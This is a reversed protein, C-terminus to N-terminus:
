FALMKVPNDHMIKTRVLDPDIGAAYLGPLINDPIHSYGQGGYQKLMCKLCIDNTLLLQDAYGAQIYDAILTIREADSIFKGAAFSANEPQFEKGFNDIEVFVGMKFLQKVYETDPEVDSHCIVIKEPPVGHQLMLKAAELGNSAWPYIHIQVAYGTKRQVLAAAHLVKRERPLIERSTGIEGIVGPRIGTNGVGNQIEHYLKEALEDETLEETEAPHTDQTYYGCGMVINVGTKAALMKLKEPSCGIQLLSCEVILDFGKERLDALEAEAAAMDNLILNDRFCYPDQMLANRDNKGIPRDQATPNAQNTLDIFLHEHSLVMSPLDAPIPGTVTQIQKM